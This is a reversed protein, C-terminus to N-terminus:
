HSDRNTVRVQGRGLVTTQTVSCPTCSISGFGASGMPGCGTGPGSPSVLGHTHTHILGICSVTGGPRGGRLLVRTCVLLTRTCHVLECGHNTRSNRDPFLFCGVFLCNRTTSRDGLSVANRRAFCRGCVQKAVACVLQPSGTVAGCLSGATIPSIATKSRGRRVCYGVLSCDRGVSSTLKTFSFRGVRVLSRVSFRKTLHFVGSFTSLERLGMISSKTVVDRGACVPSM